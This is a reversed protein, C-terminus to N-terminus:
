IAFANVLLFLLDRFWTSRNVHSWGFVFILFLGQSSSVLLRFKTSVSSCSLIFCNGKGCSCNLVQLHHTHVCSCGGGRLEAMAEMCTLLEWVGHSCLPHNLKLISSFPLCSPKSIFSIFWQPLFFFHHIKAFSIAVVSLMTSERPLFVRVMSCRCVLLTNWQIWRSATSRRWCSWQTSCAPQQDSPADLM